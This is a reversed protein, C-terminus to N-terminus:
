ILNNLYRLDYFNNQSCFLITTRRLNGFEPHPTHWCWGPLGWDVDYGRRPWVLGTQGRGHRGAKGAPCPGSRDPFRAPLRVPAGCCWVSVPPTQVMSDPTKASSTSASPLQTTTLTESSLTGALQTQGGACGSVGACVGHPETRCWRSRRDGKWSSPQYWSHLHYKCM